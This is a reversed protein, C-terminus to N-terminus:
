RLGLLLLLLIALDARIVRSRVRPLLLKLVAIGGCGLELHHALQRPCCKKSSKCLLGPSVWRQQSM